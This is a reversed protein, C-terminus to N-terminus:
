VAHNFEQHASFAAARQRAGGHRPKAALRQAAQGAREGYRAMRCLHDATRSLM